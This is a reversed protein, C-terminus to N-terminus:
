FSYSAKISAMVDDGVNGVTGGGWRFALSDTAKYSMAGTLKYTYDGSWDQEDTVGGEILMAFRESANWIFAGALAAVNGGNPAFSFSADLIFRYFEAATAGFSAGITVTTEGAGFGTGEDGTPLSARVYPTISSLNGYENDYAALDLGVRIDGLAQKDTGFDYDVLLVPVAVVATLREWLGYRAYPVVAYSNALPAEFYDVSVGAELQYRNPFNNEVTLLTRTPEACAIGAIACCLLCALWSKSAM